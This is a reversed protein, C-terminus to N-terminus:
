LAKAEEHIELAREQGVLGTNGCATCTGQSARGCRGCWLLGMCTRELDHIIRAAEDQSTAFVSYGDKDETVRIVSCGNELLVNEIITGNELRTLYGSNLAKEALADLIEGLTSTEVIGLAALNIGKFDLCRSLQGVTVNGNEM